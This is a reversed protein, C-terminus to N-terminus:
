GWSPTLGRGRNLPIGSSSGHAIRAGYRRLPADELGEGERDSIGRVGARIVEVNVVDLIARGHKLGELRRWGARRIIAEADRTERAGGAPIMRAAGLTPATTLLTASVPVFDNRTLKWHCDKALVDHSRNVVEPAPGGCTLRSSGM